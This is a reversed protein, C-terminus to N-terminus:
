LVRKGANSPSRAQFSLIHLPRADWTPRQSTATERHRGRGSRESFVVTLMCTLCLPPSRLHRAKGCGPTGYWNLQWCADREWQRYIDNHEIYRNSGPNVTWAPAPNPPHRLSLSPPCIWDLIEFTRDVHKEQSLYRVQFHTDYNVQSDGDSVRQRMSSILQIIEEQEKALKKKKLTWKLRRELKEYKSQALSELGSKIHKLKKELKEYDGGPDCIAQAIALLREGGHTEMGPFTSEKSKFATGPDFRTEIDQLRKYLGELNAIIRKFKECFEDREEHEHRVDHIYSNITVAASFAGQALSILGAISAAMSLPDAM